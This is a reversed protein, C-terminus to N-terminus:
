ETEYLRYIRLTLVRKDNITSYINKVEVTIRVRSYTILTMIHLAAECKDDFTANCLTERYKSYLEVKYKM